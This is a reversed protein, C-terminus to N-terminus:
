DRRHNRAMATRPDRAGDRSRDGTQRGSHFRRYGQRSASPRSRILRLLELSTLRKGGSLRSSQGTDRNDFRIVRFGRSAIRECFADDWV